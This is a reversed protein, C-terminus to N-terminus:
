NFIFIRVLNEFKFVYCNLVLLIFFTLIYHGQMQANLSSSAIKTISFFKEENFIENVKNVNYDAFYNFAFETDQYYDADHIDNIFEGLMEPDKFSKFIFKENTDNIVLLHKEKPNFKFKIEVPKIEKPQDDDSSEENDEQKKDKGIKVRNYLELVKHHTNINVIGYNVKIIFEGEINNKQIKINM